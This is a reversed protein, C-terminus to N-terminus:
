EGLEFLGSIRLSTSANNLVLMPRLRSYTPRACANNIAGHSKHACISLRRPGNHSRRSCSLKPEIIVANTGPLVPRPPLTDIITGSRKPRGGGGTHRGKTNKVHNQNKYRATTVPWVSTTRGVIPPPPTIATSDSRRSHRSVIICGRRGVVVVATGLPLLPSRAVVRNKM